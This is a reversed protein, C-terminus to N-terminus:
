RQRRRRRLMLLGVWASVSTSAPAGACGGGTGDGPGADDPADFAAPEPLGPVACDRRTGDDCAARLVGDLWARHVDVRTAQGAYSCSSGFVSRAVGAVRLDGDVDVFTPGGSDGFCITPHRDDGIQLLGIGFDTLPTDASQKRGTVDGDDGGYGVIRVVDDIAIAAFDDDTAVAAPGIDEIPSELLLVAIDNDIEDLRNGTVAYPYGEHALAAVVEVLRAPQRDLPQAGDYLALDVDSSVFFTPRFFYPTALPDGRLCHAATLVADPAILTGTCRFILPDDAYDNGRSLLGLVTPDEGDLSRRGRIIARTTTTSTTTVTTTSPSDPQLPACGSALVTVLALASTKSIGTM